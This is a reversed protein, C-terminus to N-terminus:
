SDHKISMIAYFIAMLFRHFIQLKLLDVHSVKAESRELANINDLAIKFQNTAKEKNTM